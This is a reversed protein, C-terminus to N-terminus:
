HLQKNRSYPFQNLEYFCVDFCFPVGNLNLINDNSDTLKIRLENITPINPLKIKYGNDNKYFQFENRVETIPISVAVKQVATDNYVNNSNVNDLLLKAYKITNTYSVNNGISSGADAITQLLDFGLPLYLTNTLSGSDTATITTTTGAQVGDSAITTKQTIDDYTLTYTNGSATANMQTQVEAILEDITYNGQTITFGYDASGDNFTFVNYDSNISYFSVPLRINEIRIFYQKDKNRKYFTIPHTLRFSFNSENANAEGNYRRDSDVLIVAHIKESM